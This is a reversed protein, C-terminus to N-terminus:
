LRVNPNKPSVKMMRPNSCVVPFLLGARSASPRCECLNPTCLSIAAAYHEPRAPNFTGLVNESLQMKSCSGVSHQHASFHGEFFLGTAGCQLGAICDRHGHATYSHRRIHQTNAGTGPIPQSHGVKKAQSLDVDHRMIVRDPLELIEPLKTSLPLLVIHSSTGASSESSHGHQPSNKSASAVFPVRSHGEQPSVILTSASVEQWGMDCSLRKGASVGRVSWGFLRCLPHFFKKAMIIPM